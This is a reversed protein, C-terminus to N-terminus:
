QRVVAGMAQSAGDDFELMMGAATSGAAPIFSALGSIATANGGPCGLGGSLEYANFRADPITLKGTASCGGYSLTFGGSSSVTLTLTSLGIQASYTGAITAFSAPMEYLAQQYSDNFSFVPLGPNSSALYGTISTQQIVASRANGQGITEAGGLPSTYSTYAATFHTGSFSLGSFRYVSNNVQDVIVGQHGADILAWM